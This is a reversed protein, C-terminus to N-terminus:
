NEAAKDYQTKLFTNPFIQRMLHYAISQVAVFIVNIYKWFLFQAAGIGIEVNM